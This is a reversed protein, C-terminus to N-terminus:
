VFVTCAYLLRYNITGSAMGGRVTRMCEGMCVRMTLHSKNEERQQGISSVMSTTETYTERAGVGIVIIINLLM